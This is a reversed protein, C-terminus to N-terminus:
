FPENLGIVDENRSIDVITCGDGTNHPCDFVTQDNLLTKLLRSSESAPLSADEIRQAADQIAERLTMAQVLYISISCHTGPNDTRLRRNQPKAPPPLKPLTRVQNGLLSWSM